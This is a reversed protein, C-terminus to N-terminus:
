NNKIAVLRILLPDDDNVKSFGRSEELYLIEFGIDEIKSSLTKTNILRRYHNDGVINLDKESRCEIYIHSGKECSKKLWNLLNSEEEENIAQILWRMYYHDVSMIDFDEINSQYFFVSQGDINQETQDISYTMIGNEIFYLSDRFNGCGIDILSQEGIGNSIYNNYCFVAFDSPKRIINTKKYYDDWYEKNM